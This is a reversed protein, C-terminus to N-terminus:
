EITANPNAMGFAHITQNTNAANDGAQKWMVAERTFVDLSEKILGAARDNDDIESGKEAIDRKLAIIESDIEECAANEVASRMKDNTLKDGRADAGLLAASAIKSRNLEKTALDAKMQFLGKKSANGLYGERMNGYYVRKEEILAKMAKIIRMQQDFSETPVNQTDM